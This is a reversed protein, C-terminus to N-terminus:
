RAPATPVSDLEPPVITLPERVKLKEAAVGGRSWAPATPVSFAAEPIMPLYIIIRDGKRIGNRKLVNAFRCVERHLQKYTLVREEGPRGDTAPEGEWILAAKNATPTGLWKDLCNFSVKLKGGVFWKADPAKWKLVQKWPKFWVIENKAQRAWFKEPSRISEFYLDRYQSLSKIHARKSFERTPPFVRKEHSLSTINMANSDPM